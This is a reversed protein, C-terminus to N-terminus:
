LSRDRPYQSSIPNEGKQNGEAPAKGRGRGSREARRSDVYGWALLALLAGASVQAWLGPGGVGAVVARIEGPPVLEDLLIGGFFACVLMSGLYVMCTRKGLVKWVTGLTAANTAPGTMLLAFAAGPSVGALILGAAVPISGTACIYVPVGAAMLLLVQLPGPPVLGSFFDGPLLATILAAALLGILLPGGIEKPLTVFGYRLASLILNRRGEKGCCEGHDAKEAGQPPVAGEGDRGELLSVAAGGILGSVLAAGARFVTFVPGLLGYTALISDVGTQPTSVLFATVAGRGAGHARLSAAVPIVSCSCLPLPVGFASAKLISLFGRGGLHREVVAPSLLVSLFGAALFGLLLYPAMEALVEWFNGPIKLLWDAM